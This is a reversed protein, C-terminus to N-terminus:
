PRRGALFAAIALAQILAAAAFLFPAAGPATQANHPAFEKILGFFAPAFAYGTQAVAIILSAVRAVDDEVFEVQAILPPLSTANGFGAGFLIVGAVLLPVSTGAAMSLAGAKTVAAAGMSRHFAPLKVGVIAGALFYVSIAASVLAVPWGTAERVASLFVPPGFFGLGWGFFALVFSGYVVRWGFFHMGTHAGSM